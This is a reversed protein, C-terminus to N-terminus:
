VGFDFREKIGGGSGIRIPVVYGTLDADSIIGLKMKYALYKAPRFHNLPNRPLCLDIVKLVGSATEEALVLTDSASMRPQNVWTENYKSSRPRNSM